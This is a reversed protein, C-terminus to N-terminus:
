FDRLVLTGNTTTYTQNVNLRGKVIALGCMSTEDIEIVSSILGVVQGEADLIEGGPDLIPGLVM